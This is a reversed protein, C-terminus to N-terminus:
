TFQSGLPPPECCRETHRVSAYRTNRSESGGVYPTVRGHRLNIGVNAVHPYRFQPIPTNSHKRANATRATAANSPEFKHPNADASWIDACAHTRIVADERFRRSESESTRRTLAHAHVHAHVYDEDDVGETDKQRARTM